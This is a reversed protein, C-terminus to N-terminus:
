VDADLAANLEGVDIDTTSDLNAVRVDYSAGTSTGTAIGVSSVAQGVANGTGQTKVRTATGSILSGDEFWAMAVEDGSSTGLAAVAQLRTQTTKKGDYTAENNAHSFRIVTTSTTSGPIKVYNSGDTKSSASTSITATSGSDLTYNAIAVSDSIPFSNKVRYGVVDSGAAGTLINSETVTSDHTTGTYQFIRNITASADVNIVETDSQVGKVYNNPLDVIDTTFNSDFELITVSSATVGRLPCGEIFVKDPSGTFTLGADFDEFNCGKWSPVRFGDVTGLNSINGLGAADSISISEVLMEESQTAELDYVTGGPAHVYMDRSLYNADRGYIATAGGTHIFGDIGGHTGILPSTSALELGATSTVFGNFKYATADELQHRGNSVAPLDDSSSVQVVNDIKDVSFESQEGFEFLDRIRANTSPGNPSM